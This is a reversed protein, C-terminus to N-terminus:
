GPLGARVAAVLIDLVRDFCSLRAVEYGHSNQRVHGVFAARPVAGADYAASADSNAKIYTVPQLETGAKKAIKIFWAVLRQDYHGLRDMSWIGPRGDLKLVAEDVIPCGDVSVFIDPKERHATIKAGHCGGEEHVTFCVCLRNVPKINGLRIAELLRILTVVGARDDFTWAAVLPDKENGLLMPGRGEAVPVATTGPRVGAAKLEEPTLGTVIFVDGWDQQQSSAKGGHTSGMSFVGKVSFEDGLIDVPHEGIKWPQLGGSNVVKLRGDPEVRTVTMGIEDMHAAMIVSPSKPDTGKFRVLLNGAPDQEVAFGMAEIDARIVSAIAAERGSPAPIKLLIDLRELFANNAKALIGRPKGRSHIAPRVEGYSPLAFAPQGLSGAEGYRKAAALRRFEAKSAGSIDRPKGRPAENKIKM